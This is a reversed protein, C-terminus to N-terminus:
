GARRRAVILDVPIGGADVRRSSVIKLGRIESLGPPQFVVLCGDDLLVHLALSNLAAHLRRATAVNAVRRGYPPNTLIINVRRSLWQRGADAQTLIVRNFGQLNQSAAELATLDVDGGILRDYPGRLAREALLVGSGCFPDLVIDTADVPVCRAAAAALTPHLSAPIDAKRYLFRDDKVMPRCGLLIGRKYRRVIIEWSYGTAANVLGRCAAAFRSIWDRKRPRGPLANQLTLRYRPTDSGTLRALEKAASSASFHQGLVSPDLADDEFTIVPFLATRIPLLQALTPAGGIVVRDVGTARVQLSRDVVEEAVLNGLGSRCWLEVGAGSKIATQTDIPDAVGAAGRFRDIVKQVAAKESQTDFDISKLITVDEALAVKGFALVLSVRVREDTERNLAEVIHALSARDELKGLGVAANRRVKWDADQLAKELAGEIESESVEKTSAIEGLLFAARRRIAAPSEGIARILSPVARSRKQLLLLGASNATEPNTSGLELLLRQIDQDDQL